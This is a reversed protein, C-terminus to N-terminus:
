EDYEGVRLELVQATALYVGAPAGSAGIVLHDPHITFIVGGYDESYPIGPTPRTDLDRIGTLLAPPTGTAVYAVGAVKVFPAAVLVLVVGIVDWQFGDAPGGMDVELTTGDSTGQGTLSRILGRKM